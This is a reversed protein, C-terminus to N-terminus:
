LRLDKIEGVSVRFRPEGLRRGNERPGNLFRGSKAESGNEAAQGRHGPVGGVGVRHM